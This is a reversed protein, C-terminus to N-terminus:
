HLGRAIADLLADSPDLSQEWYMIGGLHHAKVFAAKAAISAPDDYSIFVRTKANWLWAADAQADWHRVFGHKGIFDAKLQPWPVFALFKGYTQYLGDHAPKVGGFERGYFAVGIVLKQPPVGAALYQQVARDTTRAARPALTSAHLGAHHCTTPTMANCFDYTMLNFWDVYHNVAAIDVGSAFPGDAVAISLTYHRDGSRDHTAGIRDLSARVAALLLTFDRRDDPSSAIGSDSRGPYEWDIDLGDAHNTAVLQAASDAFAQRGAATRAAESFGGAGWGGVSIDVKLGPDRAKLAILAKLRSAADTDLVVRGAQVKAFAFILTDIKDLDKDQAPNWSVAYGIVRYHPVPRAALAPGCVCTTAFMATAAYLLWRMGIGRDHRM